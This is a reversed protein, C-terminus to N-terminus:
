KNKFRLHVFYHRGVVVLLIGGLIMFASIALRRTIVEAVFVVGGFAAIVPVSLQVVSAQITSLGGLATYWITYGIGSAIAGSLIAYVVGELSYHATRITVLVLILIIPTTRLFNYATDALPYESDRGRLSYVGWAFGATIMLLLGMLSPATVSPSVLYVFGALSICVGLWETKHLQYGSILSFIIMTAQVSGFLILSGTGTDLTIYAYSFSIAYLFLM